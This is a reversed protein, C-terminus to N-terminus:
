HIEADPVHSSEEAHVAHVSYRDHLQFVVDLGLLDKGEDAEALDKELDQLKEVRLSVQRGVQAM